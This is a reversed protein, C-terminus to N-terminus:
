LHNFTILDHKIDLLKEIFCDKTANLAVIMLDSYKSDQKISAHQLFSIDDDIHKSIRKIDEKLLEIEEKLRERHLYSMMKETTDKGLRDWLETTSNRFDEMSIQEADLAEALQNRQEIHDEIKKKLKGINRKLSQVIRTGGIYNNLLLMSVKFEPVVM